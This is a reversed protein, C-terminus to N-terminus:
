GVEVPEIGLRAVLEVVPQQEVDRIGILLHQRTALHERRAAVQEVEGLLLGAIAEVVLVVERVPADARDALQDLVLDADAQGAHLPDDALAHGGLVDLRDRRLREDVDPRHDRGDLLEEAGALEGLEHVLHIGQRTEGVATAQRREAGTAQAALAGPELDAVHVEAM